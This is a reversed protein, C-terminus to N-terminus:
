VQRENEEEYPMEKNYIRPKVIISWGFPLPHFIWYWYEKYTLERLHDFEWMLGIM